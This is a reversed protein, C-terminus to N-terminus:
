LNITTRLTVLQQDSYSVKTRNDIFMIDGSFKNISPLNNLQTVVFTSDTNADYLSNSVSLAHNNLSSLLVQNNSSVQIVEFSKTRNSSLELMTDNTLQEALSNTTTNLTVLFCPTGITNAFARQNGYQKPNKIIGFQRYDNDVNINHILENNITSYFVITDAFLERVSDYGHGGYPPLIAELQAGTGDGTIVVNAYSYSFGANAITVYSVTNANSIVVNGAFNTGDGYVMINASTYNNGANLVRFAHIAGDIASLEVTSQNTDLDGTSLEAIANAGIGDGVIDLDLYTYGSGRSTIFISEVEGAENVYPLLEAGSGDGTLVIHTQINSRYGIGPDNIVVRDLQTNYLVPVLNAISATNYYGTGTGVEDNITINASLYNNGRDKIKVDVIQGAQNFVPILNAISNGTGGLFEGNVTLTVVANGLYGSGRSDVIINEVEGNSYYANTVAKQVPMYQETLFKNRLSLPITYMYKWKYGDATNLPTVDTGFPKVTSQAGNNNFLCKYVHFDTTLVYFNSEKLSSAGTSSKFSSSYNGDFQDYITGSVWDIRRTVLSIDSPQIKKVAIMHNRTEHEYVQTNAPTDPALPTAWPLVKGVYYYYNSRRSQIDNYVAEALALHVSDKILFSM